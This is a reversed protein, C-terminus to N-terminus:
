AGAVERRAVVVSVPVLPHEHEADATTRFGCDLCQRADYRWLVRAAAAVGVTVADDLQGKTRQTRATARDLEARLHAAPAQETALEAALAQARREADEAQGATRQHATREEALEAAVEQTEEAQQLLAACAADREATLTPVQHALHERRREQRIIDLRSQLRDRESQLRDRDRRADDREAALAEAVEVAQALVADREGTLREMRVDAPVCTGDPGVEHGPVECSQPQEAEWAEALPGLAEDVIAVLRQGEAQAAPDAVVPVPAPEPDDPRDPEAEVEALTPHTRGTLEDREAQDIDSAFGVPRAFEVAPEAVPELEAAPATKPPEYKDCGCGPVKCGGKGRKHDWQVDGCCRGRGADPLAQPEVTTTM